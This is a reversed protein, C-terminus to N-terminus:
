KKQMLKILFYFILSVNISYSYQPEIISYYSYSLLVAHYM